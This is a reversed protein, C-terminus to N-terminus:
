VGAQAFFRRLEAAMEVPKDGQVTHGAGEFTIAEGHQVAKALRHALQADIEQSRGGHVVLVPCAIQGVEKWAQEQYELM